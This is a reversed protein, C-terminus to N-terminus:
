WRLLAADAAGLPLSVQRMSGGSAAATTGLARWKGSAPDLVQAGRPGTDLQLVATAPKGYDRNTVLVYVHSESRFLGITLNADGSVRLPVDDPPATGGRPISGSQFTRLHRASKLARSLATIERNAKSVAQFLPGPSGDRKMIGNRWGMAGDPPPLWYTFYIVGSAGYALTQLAQFRIMSEDLRRYTLHQVSLVVQWFPTWATGAEALQRVADLNGFFGPRDGGRTFDYFDWSLLSPKVLDMYRQLYRTYSEVGLQSPNATLDSSAYSPFLNIYAVRGPDLDKLAAVVEGLGAFRDASPEDALFYGMLAPYRKYDRVVAKLDSLLKASGSLHDPIRADSIIVRLGVKHATELIRRNREVTAVGECPPLIVNFGADVLRRYQDITIFPDPPSCWCGIAFSPPNNRAAALSVASVACVLAACLWCSM